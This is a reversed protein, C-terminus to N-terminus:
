HLISFFTRHQVSSWSPANIIYLKFASNNLRKSVRPQFEHSIAVTRVFHLEYVNAGLHLNTDISTLFLSFSSIMFSLFTIKPETSTRIFKTALYFLKPLCSSTVNFCKCLSWVWIKYSVFVVLYTTQITRNLQTYITNWKIYIYIYKNVDFGEIMNQLDVNSQMCSIEVKLKLCVVRSKTKKNHPLEKQANVGLILCKRIEKQANM